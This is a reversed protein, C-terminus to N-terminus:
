IDVIEAKHCDSVLFMVGGGLQNIRDRRFNHYGNPKYVSDPYKM